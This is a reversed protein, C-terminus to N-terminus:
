TDMLSHDKESYVLKGNTRKVNKAVIYEGPKLSNFLSRYQRILNRAM